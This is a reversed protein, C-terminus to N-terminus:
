IGPRDKPYSKDDHCSECNIKASYYQEQHCDECDVEQHIDDLVLGTIKHDFSGSVFDAHCSTCTNDLSSFMNTSFHCERCKLNNHYKNLVWGTTTEHDFPNMISESHCKDCDSEEHCPYCSGHIDEMTKDEDHSIVFRKQDIFSEAEMNHCRQCNEQRHCDVCKFEFIDVHEDHYFTVYNGEDAATEFVVKEPATIPPHESGVIDTKDANAIMESEASRLAHCISCKTNHSWERHCGLCQRHYAGKLAPMGLDAKDAKLKHCEKCSLIRGSPNRHHCITCGGSFESMQSHLKHSFLVPVYYETLEDITVVEPGDETTKHATLIEHRQCKILCPNEKSPLDCSHCSRCIMEQESHKVQQASGNM